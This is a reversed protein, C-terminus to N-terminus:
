KKIEEQKLIQKDSEVQRRAKEKQEVSVDITKKGIEMESFTPIEDISPPEFIPIETGVEEQIFLNNEKLITEMDEISNPTIGFEQIFVEVAKDFLVTVSMSKGTWAARVYENYLKFYEQKSSLYQYVQGEMFGTEMEIMTNFHELNHSYTKEEAIDENKLFFDTDIVKIEGDKTWMLGGQNVDNFMIKDASLLKLDREAKRIAETLTKLDIEKVVHDLMSGDIYQMAYGQFTGDIEIRCKPFVCTKNEIGIIKSFSEEDHLEMGQKKFVKVALEDSYKYVTACAGGGLNPLKSIEDSSLKMTEM